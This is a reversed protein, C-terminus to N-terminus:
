CPRIPTDIRGKQSDDCSVRIVLKTRGPGRPGTWRVRNRDDGSTKLTYREIACCVPTVALGPRPESWTAGGDSSVTVWRHPGNQRRYDMLLREDALEVLRNEQGVDNGPVPQGRKWGRGHDESYIAFVGWPAVKWVAAALPQDGDALRRHQQFADASPPLM